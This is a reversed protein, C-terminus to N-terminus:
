KHFHQARDSEIFAVHAAFACIKPIFVPGFIEIQQRSPANKCQPPVVRLYLRNELLNEILIQRVQHPHIAADEAPQRSLLECRMGGFAEGADEEGVAAGLGNFGGDLEGAAIGAAAADDVAIVGEVSEGGARKGDVAGVEEAVAEAIEHGARRHDREVIQIGQLLRQRRLLHRSEDDLGHLALGAFDDGVAEEEFGLAEAFLVASQQDDVFDLATEASGSFPESMLVPVDLGVDDCQRFREAAADRDATQHRLGADRGFQFWAGM